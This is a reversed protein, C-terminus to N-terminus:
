LPIPSSHPFWLLYHLLTSIIATAFDNDNTMLLCLPPELWGSTVDILSFWLILEKLEIEGLRIMEEQGM